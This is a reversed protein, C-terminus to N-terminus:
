LSHLPRQVLAEPEATQFVSQGTLLRYATAGLAYVDSAASCPGGLLVEPATYGPSGSFCPDGSRGLSVFRPIGDDGVRVNIPRIDGHVVGTQHLYCVADVLRALMAIRAPLSQGAAWRHSAAGRVSETVLWWGGPDASHYRVLCPHQLRRLLEAEERLKLRAGPSRARKLILLGEPGEVVWVEGLADERLKRRLPFPPLVPPSPSSTLPADRM